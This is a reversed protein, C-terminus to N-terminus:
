MIEGKGKMGGIGETYGDKSDKLDHSGKENSKTVYMYTCIHLM